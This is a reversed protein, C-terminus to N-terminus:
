KAELVTVKASLEQIAKCLVSTLRDYSVADPQGEANLIVLEPIVQVVEEAIFGVDERQDQSKYNFQRSILANVADLGYGSVRINDKYRASSTDYTWGGTGNNWKMANTGAGSTLNQVKFETGSGYIMPSADYAGGLIASRNGIAIVTAGANQVSYSAGGNTVSAIGNIACNPSISGDGISVNGATSIRLAEKRTTSGVNFVHAFGDYQAGTGSLTWFRTISDFTPASAAGIRIAGLVDLKESPTTLGIGLRNNVTDLYLPTGNRIQGYAMYDTANVANAVGTHKFNSMPLNATPVNQGDKTLCNNIGAVFDDDQSDHRGPEIGISSAADGTWGNTTYNWKRYTGSGNWTM